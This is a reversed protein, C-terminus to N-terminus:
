GATKIWEKGQRTYEQGFGTGLGIGNTAFCDTCLVGWPGQSTRADYLLEGDSRTFPRLCLDCKTDSGIWKGIPKEKNTRKQHKMELVDLVLMAM